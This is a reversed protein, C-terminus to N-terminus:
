SSHFLFLFLLPSLPGAGAGASTACDEETSAEKAPPARRRRRRCLCDASFTETQSAFALRALGRGGPGYPIIHLPRRGRSDYNDNYRRTRRKGGRKCIRRLGRPGGGVASGGCNQRHDIKMGRKDWTVELDGLGSRKTARPRRQGRWLTALPYCWCVM